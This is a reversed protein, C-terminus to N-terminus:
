ARPHATQYAKTLRETSVHTYIQTTGLSAHGLLEQVSRLDAGGDLLHTAATHRLTHPGLPGTGPSDALLTAVVQYVSRVGLKKGQASLFVSSGGEGRDLTQRGEDLYKQLARAAPAGFPVMREKNGKGVVRLTHSSLDLGEMTLGVLESVRLASAYLLEVMAHDRLAIPDGSEARESLGSLIDDMHSRGLVRPLSRQASPARVRLGPDSVVHGQRVLWLTFKKVASVKRRLSSAALGAEAQAWLWQRVLETDLESATDVRERAAFDVLQALDSSYAELTNDSLTRSSSLEDLYVFVARKLDM